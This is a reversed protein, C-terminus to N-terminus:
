KQDSTTAEKAAESLAEATAKERWEDYVRMGIGLITGGVLSILMAEVLWM